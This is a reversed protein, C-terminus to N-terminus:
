RLEDAPKGRIGWHGRPVEFLMIELDNETLGCAGAEEYLLRILNKKTEASRGELLMIEVITYHESRDAPFVFEAKDLGIFRQFRKEEPIGLAKTLCSHIIDSLTERVAGLRERIGYIKVQVM